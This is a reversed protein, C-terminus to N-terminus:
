SNKCEEEYIKRFKEVEESTMVIEKAPHGSEDQYQLILKDDYDKENTAILVCDGPNDIGKVDRLYKGIESQSPDHGLKRRWEEYEEKSLRIESNEGISYDHYSIYYVDEGDQPSITYKKLSLERLYEVREEDSLGFYKAMEDKTLKITHEVGDVDKYTIESEFNRADFLEENHTKLDKEVEAYVKEDGTFEYFDEKSSIPKDSTAIVRGNNKIVAHGDADLEVTIESTDIGM